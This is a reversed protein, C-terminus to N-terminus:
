SLERATAGFQRLIVDPPSTSSPSAAGSTEASSQMVMTMLMGLRQTSIRCRLLRRGPGGLWEATRMRDLKWQMDGRWHAAGVKDILAHDAAFLRKRWPWLIVAVALAHFYLTLLFVRDTFESDPCQYALCFRERFSRAAEHGAAAMAVQEVPQDSSENVVLPEAPASWRASKAPETQSRSQPGSPRDCDHRSGPAFFALGAERAASQIIELRSSDAGDPNEEPGFLAIVAAATGQKRSIASATWRGVAPPLPNTSSTAIILIDARVADGAAVEGWDTDSLLDFSWPFPLFNIDEGLQRGLDTMVRMARKGATIENYAIVVRLQHDAPQFDAEQQQDDVFIQTQMAALM